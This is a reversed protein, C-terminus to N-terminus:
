RILSFNESKEDPVSERAAWILKFPMALRFDWLRRVFLSWVSHVGSATKGEPESPATAAIIAASITKRSGSTIPGCEPFSVISGIIRTQDGELSPELLTSLCDRHFWSM